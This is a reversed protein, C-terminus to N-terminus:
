ILACKWIAKLWQQEKRIIYFPHNLWQSLGFYNTFQIPIRLLSFYRFSYIISFQLRTTSELLWELLHACPSSKLAFRCPSYLDSHFWLTQSCFWFCLQSWYLIICTATSCYEQLCTKVYLTWNICLQTDSWSKQPQHLLHLISWCKYSEM